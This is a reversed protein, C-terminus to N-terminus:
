LGLERLANGAALFATSMSNAALEFIRRENRLVVLACGTSKDGEPWIWVQVRLGNRDDRCQHMTAEPNNLRGGVPISDSM